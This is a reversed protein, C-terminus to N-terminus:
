QGAPIPIVRLPTGGAAIELLRDINPHKGPHRRADETHEAYLLLGTGAAERDIRGYRRALAAYVRVSGASGPRNEIVAVVADGNVLEVRALHSISPLRALNEAFNM